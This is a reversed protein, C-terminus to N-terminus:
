FVKGIGLGFLIGNMDIRHPMKHFHHHHRSHFCMVLYDFSIEAFYNKYCYYRLGTKFVAGVGKKSVVHHHLSSSEKVRLWACAGGAGLYLEWGTCWWWSYKLGLAAPVFRADHFHGKKQPLIGISGWAKWPIFEWREGFHGSLELQFVPSGIPYVNRIKEYSAFYMGGKLTGDLYYAESKSPILLQITLLCLLICYKM